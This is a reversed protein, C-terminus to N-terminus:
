VGKVMETKKPLLEAPLGQAARWEAHLADLRALSTEPDFALVGSGRMVHQDELVPVLECPVLGGRAALEELTQGFNQEAQKAHPEIFAWPIGLPWEVEKIGRAQFWPEVHWFSLIPFWSDEM